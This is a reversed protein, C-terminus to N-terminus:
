NWIRFKKIFHRKLRDTLLMYIITVVILFGFYSVGLTGFGFSAKLSSLTVILAVVLVMLSSLMLLKTPASKWFPTKATRIVFIVLTQTLLSELFWGTQFQGATAKFVWLLSFFTIFDFLSSIPGFFLMYKKIFSIDWHRPKILSEKDVKDSPITLQSFDYLTNNLLIQVPTMPLFPLFFSAFSASFMNGFNSSTGMLIYKVTNNFIRRGEMVGEAVVDLGKKLLVVSASEKAVDAGGDVSIGVDATHLAPADNIGDGLFGVTHGLKQLAKIINLKNEPTIRAFINNKAVAGAFEAPLLKDLQEGLIVGKVKLGVEACVKLAVSENDGTLLKLDINLKELRELAKKADKKPADSFVLLGYLDLNTADQWQYETLERPLVKGALAVVRFGRMSLDNVRNQMFTLDVNPCCIKAVDDFVGKVLLHVESEFRVVNFSAKKNYDFSETDLYNISGLSKTVGSKESATIIALDLSNVAMGVHLVKPTSLFAKELVRRSRQMKTDYYDTLEIKGETLTGTKDCCLIDMNGLNEVAVLQKVVVHKKALKGAGHSLSLTVVVPLLEPTLGVAIALAFMLSSLFDRGLASNILLIAATLIFIIKVLLNGFSRLGLQFATEPKLFNINKAIQGYKTQRGVQTVVGTGHGSEVNTGMYIADRARKFVPVSEGTLVSENVELNEAQLVQLDAPIVSGTTFLVVDDVAIQTLLLECVKGDRKVLVKPTIRKLLGDVTKQASYENWFGLGSSVFIMAFIYISSVREGLLFSVLTSVVLVYVLYNGKFQRVFINFTSLKQSQLINAGYKKINELAQASTLGADKQTEQATMRM